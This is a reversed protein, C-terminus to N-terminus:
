FPFAKNPMGWQKFKSDGNYVKTSSLLGSMWGHGYPWPMALAGIATNRQKESSEGMFGIRWAKGLTGLGGGIEIGYKDLLYNRAKLDDVNETDKRRQPHCGIIVSPPLTSGWPRMGKVFADPKTSARLGPRLGEELVIQLTLGYIMNILTHHYVAGSGIIQIM